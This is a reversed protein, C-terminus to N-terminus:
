GATASRLRTSRRPVLGHDDDDLGGGESVGGAAVKEIGAHGDAHHEPMALNGHQSSSSCAYYLHQERRAYRVPAIRYFLTDCWPRTKSSAPTSRSCRAAPQPTCMARRSCPPICFGLHQPTTLANARRHARAAFCLRSILQSIQRDGAREVFANNARERVWCAPVCRRLGTRLLTCARWTDCPEAAQRSPSWSAM